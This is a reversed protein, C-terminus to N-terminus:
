KGFFERPSKGITKRFETSFYSYDSFGVKAAIESITLGSGTLLLASRIRYDRLYTSFNRGFNKTFLHCFHTLEYGMEDAITRSSLESAYNQSIFDSCTRIFDINRRNQRRNEVKQSIVIGLLSYVEQLKMIQGNVDCTFPPYPTAYQIKKLAELIVKSGAEDAGIVRRCDTACDCVARIEDALSSKGSPIFSRADIKACYYKTTENDIRCFGEHEAYPLIIACDGPALYYEKGDIILELDGATIAIFEIECHFHPNICNFKNQEAILGYPIKARYEDTFEFYLGGANIGDNEFLSLNTEYHMM